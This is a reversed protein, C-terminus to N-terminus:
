TAVPQSRQLGIALVAAAAHLVAIFAALVALGDRSADLQHVVERIDLAAFALMAVAVVILVITLDPRLWVAASLGLSVVIAVILLPISEPNIGLLTESSAESHSEGAVEEGAIEGSEPSSGEVHAAEAPTENSEQSREISVGVAFAVTAVVILAALLRNSAM